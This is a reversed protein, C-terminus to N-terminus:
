KRFARHCHDCSQALQAMAQETRVADGAHIAQNVRGATDRMEACLQEWKPVDAPNKVADHDTAAEQAIAALTAAAATSTKMQSKFREGQVSRKLSSNVVPVEKMLLWLPAVPEWRLPGAATTPASQGDAAKKLRELAQKASPHDEATALARTAALALSASKKLPHDEDTLGLGLSVVAAVGAEKAIRSKRADDFEDPKALLGDLRAVISHLQNALDAAPAGVTPKATSSEDGSASLTAMVLSLAILGALAGASFHISISRKM